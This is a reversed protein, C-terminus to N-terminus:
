GELECNFKELLSEGPFEWFRLLLPPGMVTVTLMPPPFPSVFEIVEVAVRVVVVIVVVEEEEELMPPPGQVWLEVVAEVEVVEVLVLMDLLGTPGCVVGVLLMLVVVLRLLRLLLLLVM